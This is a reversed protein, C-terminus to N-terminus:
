HSPLLMHELAIYGAYHKDVYAYLSLVESKGTSCSSHSM